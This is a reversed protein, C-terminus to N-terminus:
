NLQLKSWLVTTTTDVASSEQNSEKFVNKIGAHLMCLECLTQQRYFLYTCTVFMRQINKTIFYKELFLGYNGTRKLVKRLICIKSM